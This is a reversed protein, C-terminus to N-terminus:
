KRRSQLKTNRPNKDLQEQQADRRKEEGVEKAKPSEKPTAYYGSIYLDTIKELAKKKHDFAERAADLIKAQRVSELYENNKEKYEKSLLIASQIAAETVKEVTFAQPDTRIQGDLNARCIDLREKAKDREFQAQVSSEAWKMFLSAQQMWEEHLNDRDITLDEKYSKQTEM